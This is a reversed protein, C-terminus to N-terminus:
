EPISCIPNRRSEAEERKTHPVFVKFWRRGSKVEHKHRRALREEGLEIKGRGLGHIGRRFTLLIIGITMITRDRQFVSENM